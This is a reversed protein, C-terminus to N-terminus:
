LDYEQSKQRLTTIKRQSCSIFLKPNGKSFCSLAVKSLVLPHKWCIKFDLKM